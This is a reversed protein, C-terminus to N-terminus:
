LAEAAPAQLIPEFLNRTLYIDRVHLHDAGFNARYVSAKMLDIDNAFLCRWDAGLGDRARGIGVFFEAFEFPTM